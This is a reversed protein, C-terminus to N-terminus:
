NIDIAPMDQEKAVYQSKVHEITMDMIPILQAYVEPQDALIARFDDLLLDAVDEIRRQKEFEWRELEVGAKALSSLAQAIKYADTASKIEIQQGLDAKMSVEGFMNYFNFLSSKLKDYVSERYTPPLKDPQLRLEQANQKWQRKPGKPM